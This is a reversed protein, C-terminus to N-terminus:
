TRPCPRRHKFPVAADVATKMLSEIGAQEWQRQVAEINRGCASPVFGSNEKQRITSLGLDSAYSARM